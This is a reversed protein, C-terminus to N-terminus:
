LPPVAGRCATLPRGVGRLGCRARPRQSTVGAILQCVGLLTILKSFTVGPLGLDRMGPHARLPAWGCAVPGRPQHRLLGDVPDAVPEPGIDDSVGEAANGSWRGSRSPPPLAFGPSVQVANVPLDYSVQVAMPDTEDFTAKALSHGCQFDPPLQEYTGRCSPNHSPTPANQSGAMVNTFDAM